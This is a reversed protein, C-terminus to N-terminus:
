RIRDASRVLDDDKKVARNAFAAFLIALWLLGTAISPVFNYTQWPEGHMYQRTAMFAILCYAVMTGVCLTIVTKGLRMQFARNTYMFIAAFAMAAAFFVLVTIPIHQEAIAQPTPELQKYAVGFATIQLNEAYTTSAISSAVIATFWASAVICLSACLYYISQIRQIM